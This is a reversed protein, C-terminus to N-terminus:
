GVPALNFLRVLLLPLPSQYQLWGVKEPDALKLRLSFSLAAYTTLYVADTSLFFAM